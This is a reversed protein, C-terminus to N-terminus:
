TQGGLAHGITSARPVASAFCPMSIMAPLVYVKKAFGVSMARPMCLLEPDRVWIEAQQSVRSDRLAWSISISGTTPQEDFTRADQQVRIHACSCFRRGDAFGAATAGTKKLLM